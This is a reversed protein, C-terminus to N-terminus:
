VLGLATQMGLMFYFLHSISRQKCKIKNIIISAHTWLTWKFNASSVFIQLLIQLLSSTCFSWSSKFVNCYHACVHCICNLIWFNIPATQRVARIEAGIVISIKNWQLHVSASFYFLAYHYEGHAHVAFLYRLLTVWESCACVLYTESFHQIEHMVTCYSIICHHHSHARCWSSQVHGLSKIELNQMHGDCRATLKALCLHVNRAHYVPGDDTSL